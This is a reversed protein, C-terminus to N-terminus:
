FAFSYQAGLIWANNNYSGTVTGRGAANQNNNIAAEKIYLYAVGVDLAAGKSPQWQTGFSFWTRDNDPLSVLRTAEGKVPTQDYAVGFKLKMDSALQYNAGVAVRWTDRFDTDLTQATTGAAFGPIASTRIVDIRPISSWGTWSVDGLLQWKSSMQHTGSLIFVDPLKINAKANGSSPAVAGGVNITGTVDHNVASRYSAGVKTEPSVNFLAGVNWGWSDGSLNMTVPSAALGPSAVSAVRLYDATLRQWSLGGGVSVTKNVRYAVSPNINYTKVDFSNAQASGVWPKDSYETKLGFPAGVGLGLYLDPNL